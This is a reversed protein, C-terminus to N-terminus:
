AASEDEIGEFSLFRTAVDMAEDLADDLYRPRAISPVLRDQGIWTRVDAHAGATERKAALLDALPRGTQETIAVLAELDEVAIVDLVEVDTRGDLEALSPALFEELLPSWHVPTMTIIMPWFRAIRAPELHQFRLTAVHGSQDPKMANISRRLQKPRRGVMETLDRELAQQDGDRKSEVTLRHSAVEMLVAENPYTITVDSSDIGNAFKKDGHVKGAGPLRPERHALEVLQLVYRETLKGVRTTYAGVADRKRAADLCRYHVGDAIWALLARPSQLVYQGSQLRIFPRQMFPVRNWSLQSLTQDGVEARFWSPPAAIMAEAAECEEESLQMSRFIGALADRTLSSSFQEDDGGKTGLHAFLAFGLSMQQKLGLGYDERLWRDLPVDPNIDPSDPHLRGFIAWTRGMANGFVPKGNYEFLQTLHGLWGTRDEAFEAGAPELYDSVFFISSRIRATYEDQSLGTPEEESVLITLLQLLTFAQECCVVREGPLTRVFRELPKFAPTGGFLGAALGLQNEPDTEIGHLLAQLECVVPLIIGLPVSALTTLFEDFPPSAIQMAEPTAYTAVNGLPRPREARLLGAFRVDPGAPPEQVHRDRLSSPLILGADSIWWKPVVLGSFLEPM